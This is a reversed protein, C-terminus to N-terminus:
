IMVKISQDLNKRLKNMALNWCLIKNQKIKTVSSHWHSKDSALDSTWVFSPMYPLLVTSKKGLSGALQITINDVSVIEDCACILAALGDLDQNNNVEPLQLVKIGYNNFLTEIEDSVNGYQLNVLAVEDTPLSRALEDLSISDKVGSTRWSIGILYKSTIHHDELHKCILFKKLQIFM